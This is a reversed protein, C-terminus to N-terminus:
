WIWLDGTAPSSPATSAVTIKPQATTGVTVVGGVTLNGPVTVYNSGYGLQLRLQSQAYLRFEGSPGDRLMWADLASGIYTTGQLETNGSARLSLNRGSGSTGPTAIDVGINDITGNNITEVKLGRAYNPGQARAGVGRLRMLNIESVKVSPPGICGFDMGNLVGTNADNSWYEAYWLTQTSGNMISTSPTNIGTVMWGIRDAGGTGGINIRGGFATMGQNVLSPTDAGADNVLAGRTYVMRPRFSTTGLDYTNDAAPYFHGAANLYWRDVNNTDFAILGLSGAGNLALVGNNPGHVTSTSVSVATYLSRVRQGGSGIDLTNDTSPQFATTNMQWYNTAGSGFSLYGFNGGCIWAFAGAGPNVGIAVASTTGESSYIPGRAYISRPRNAGTAGIDYSNDAVTQLTGAATLQWKSTNNSMLYLDGAASGVWGSM